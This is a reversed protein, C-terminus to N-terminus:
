VAKHEREAVWSLPTLGFKSEKSNIDAKDSVPYKMQLTILWEDMSQGEENMVGEDLNEWRNCPVELFEHGKCWPYKNHEKCCPGCFVGSPCSKCVFRGNVDAFSDCNTCTENWKPTGPKRRTFWFEIGFAICASSDDGLFLLQKGLRYVFNERKDKDKESLILCLRQGLCERLHRDADVASTPIYSALSSKWNELNLTSIWDGASRGYCDLLNINGGSRILASFKEENMKHLAIHLPTGKPAQANPDAGLLLLLDLVEKRGKYWAAYHLPTEGYIDVATPDAGRTRLSQVITFASGSNLGAANHIPTIGYNDAASADAGLSLLTQVIKLASSSKSQVADHLVTWGNADVSLPDAGLKLLAEVIEFASDSESAAACHLISQGNKDKSSPDAGLDLLKHVISGYYKSVAQHLATRGECDITTVTAGCDLLVHAISEHGEQLAYYLPDRGKSDIPSVNAGSALLLSVSVEKGSNAAAHLPTWGTNDAESANFGYDLLFQVYEPTDLTAVYHLYSRGQSDKASLAFRHQALKAVLKARHASSAYWIVFNTIQILNTYDLEECFAYYAVPWTVEFFANEPLPFRKDHEIAQFILVYDALMKETEIDSNRYYNTIDELKAKLAHMKSQAPELDQRSLLYVVLDFNFSILISYWVPDPDILNVNFRPESLLIRAAQFVSDSYYRLPNGLSIDLKPCSILTEVSQVQEYKMAAGMATRGDSDTLNLGISDCDLLMQLIAVQGQAAAIMLPTRQFSDLPHAHSEPCDLFEQALKEMGFRAAVHLASTGTIIYKSVDTDQYRYPHWKWEEEMEILQNWFRLPADTALFRKTLDRVALSFCQSAHQGWFQAAYGLLAYKSLLTELQSKLSPPEVQFHDLLLYNLCAIALKEHGDPFLEDRRKQLYENISLHVLRIISTEKDVTVLGQCSEILFVADTLNRHDLTSAEADIALAHRLEDITMSRKATSLWVLTQMARNARTHSQTSQQKIRDITLDLNQMLGTPLERLARRVESENTQSLLNGV